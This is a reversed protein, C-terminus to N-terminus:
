EYDSFRLLIMQTHGSCSDWQQTMFPSQVSHDLYPPLAIQTLKSLLFRNNVQGYYQILITKRLWSGALRPHLSACKFPRTHCVLGPALLAGIRVHPNWTLRFSNFWPRRRDAGETIIGRLRTFNATLQGSVSGFSFPHLQWPSALFVLSTALPAPSLCLFLFLAVSFILLWFFVFFFLIRVEYLSVIIKRQKGATGSSVLAGDEQMNAFAPADTTNM